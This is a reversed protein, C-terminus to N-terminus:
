RTRGMYPRSQVIVIDDGVTLWEMDQAQGGFMRESENAIAALRRALDETLVVRGKEIRVERVGGRADFSLMTDDDSRSLVQVTGEPWDHYLLQEAVKRGEVVRMGLGKKANIFVADIEDPEYPNASIMVGSAEADVGRQVLVSAKVGRHDIGAAERAAFARENWVSGWVTRIAAALADADKVNPVSTYLGAGNFGKLDESNTSSRAFVGGAGIIRARRENVATMLGAPMAGKDFDERIAALERRLRPADRHIGEDSLLAAIRRDLHNERVFRDYWAFPISFGPPVTFGHPGTEAYRALEGLNAAKAGTRVVDRRTQETLAPLATYAVDARPVRPTEESRRERAKAIEASTAERISISAGHAELVVQRGALKAYDRDADALFVNPVGWTGALLNVHTLPTSFHTTIIGAVPNLMVPNSKLVVIEDRALMETDPDDVIHLRGVARGGNMVASTRADYAETPNIVPFGPDGAVMREQGDSNPKFSLPAFFRKHLLGMAQRLLPLRITDGEWLEVGYRGLKAYHVVSGLIFRRDDTKYSAKILPLDDQTSLYTSHIFDFHFAYKRTNLWYVRDHDARDIVFLLQDRNFMRGANTDGSMADYMDADTISDVSNSTALRQAIPTWSVMDPVNVVLASAGGITAILALGIALHRQLPQM